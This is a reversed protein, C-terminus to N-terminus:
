EEKLADQTNLEVPQEFEEKCDFCHWVQHVGIAYSGFIWTLFSILVNTTKRNSTIYEINHSGCHPCAISKRKIEKLEHLIEVANEIDEEAVMIKIGGIANTLIPNITATNEDKLWCRIGAEELRGLTLNADIYNDFSELLKFEM